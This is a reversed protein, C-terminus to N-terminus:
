KKKALGLLNRKLDELTMLAGVLKDMTQIFDELRKLREM